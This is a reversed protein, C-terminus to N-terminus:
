CREGAEHVADIRCALIMDNCQFIRQFEQVSVLLANYALTLDRGICVIVQRCQAGCQALARVHDQKAFHAVVLRDLSRHGCSLCSVKNQGAQM